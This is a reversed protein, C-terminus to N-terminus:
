LMGPSRRARGAPLYWRDVHKVERPVVFRDGDRVVVLSIIWSPSSEHNM